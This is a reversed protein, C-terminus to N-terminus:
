RRWIAWLNKIQNEIESYQWSKRSRELSNPDHVRFGTEDYGYLEIFHGETTFDGPGMACIIKGGGDLTQYLRNVSLPLEDAYLGYDQCGERILKWSTGSGKIYYGKKESYKAVKPPLIKTDGTLAVIVMALCAPGCGSESIVSEGYPIDKWREDTQLFLPEKGNREEDTLGNRESALLLDKPKSSLSSLQQEDLHSMVVFLGLLALLFCTGFFIWSTAIKKRKRRRRTEYRNSTNM